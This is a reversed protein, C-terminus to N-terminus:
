KIILEVILTLVTLEIFPTIPNTFVEVNLVNANKVLIAPILEVTLVLVCLEIFLLLIIKFAAVAFAEEISM